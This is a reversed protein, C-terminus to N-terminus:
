RCRPARGTSRSLEPSPRARRDRRARRTRMASASRARPTEPVSAAFGRGNEHSEGPLDTTGDREAHQDAREESEVHAVDAALDRQDEEADANDQALHPARLLELREQRRHGCTEHDLVQRDRLPIRQARSHLTAGRRHQDHKKRGDTCREPQVRQGRDPIDRQGHGDYPDGQNM